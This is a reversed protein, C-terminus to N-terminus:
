AVTCRSSDLADDISAIHACLLCTCRRAHPTHEFRSAEKLIPILQTHVQPEYILIHVLQAALADISNGFHSNLTFRQPENLHQSIANLFAPISFVDEISHEFLANVQRQLDLLPPTEALLNDFLAFQISRPEHPLSADLTAQSHPRDRARLYPQLNQLTPSLKERPTGQVRTADQSMLRALARLEPPAAAQNQSSKRLADIIQAFTEWDLQMLLEIISLTPETPSEDQSSM